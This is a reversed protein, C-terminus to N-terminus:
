IVTEVTRVDVRDRQICSHEFDWWIVVLEVASGCQECEIVDEVTLDNSGSRLRVVDGVDVDYFISCDTETEPLKRPDERDDTEVFETTETESAVFWPGDARNIVSEIPDREGGNSLKARVLRDAMQEVTMSYPIKTKERQWADFNEPGVGLLWLNLKDSWEFRVGELTVSSGAVRDSPKFWDRAISPAPEADSQEAAQVRRVSEANKFLNSMEAYTSYRPRFELNM